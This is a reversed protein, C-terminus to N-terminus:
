LLVGFCRSLWNGLSRCPVCNGFLVKETSAMCTYWLVRICDEGSLRFDLPSFFFFLFFIIIIILFWAVMM